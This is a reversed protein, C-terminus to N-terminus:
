TKFVEVSNKLKDAMKDLAFSKESLEELNSAQVTISSEIEQSSSSIQNSSTNIKDINTEITEKKNLIEAFSASVDEVSNIANLVETSIGKFSVVTKNIIDKQMSIERSINSTNDVVGQVSLNIDLVIQNINKSHTLVAEALNRIESAVVAFGKGMEGARASEISANLSLLNTNEAIENIIEIIENIKEIDNRLQLVQESATSFSSHVENVSSVLEELDKEGYFSLEKVKKNSDMVNQTKPIMTKILYSFEQFVGVTKNINEAQYIISTVVRKINESMKSGIQANSDGSTSLEDAFSKLDAVAMKVFHIAEKTNGITKNMQVALDKLEDRSNNEVQLTLDGKSVVKLLDVMKIIPKTVSRSFIVGIIVAIIVIIIFVILTFLVANFITKNMNDLSIGINLTGTQTADIAINSSVNYTKGGDKNTLIIGKTQLNEVEKNEIQVVGESKKKDDNQGKVSASTGSDVADTKDTDSVIIAGNSDSLSIYEINGESSRKIEGFIKNLSSLDSLQYQMIERNLSRILTYGDNRMQAEMAKKLQFTSVALISISCLFVITTITAIIKKSISNLM